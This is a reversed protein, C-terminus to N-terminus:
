DLGSFVRVWRFCYWFFSISIILKLVRVFAYGTVVGIAIINKLVVRQLQFALDTCELGRHFKKLIYRLRPCLLISKDTWNNQVVVLNGVPIRLLSRICIPCLTRSGFICPGTDPNRHRLREICLQLDRALKNSNQLIWQHDTRQIDLVYAM